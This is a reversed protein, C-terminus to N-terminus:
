RDAIESGVLTLQGAADFEYTNYRDYSGAPGETIREILQQRTEDVTLDSCLVFSFTFQETENDWLFYGYPVNKPYVAATLLGFDASGDFNIDRIDPEGVTFGHNVFLGEYLWDGDYTLRDTDITQLLIDGKGTGEYVQIQEVRRYNWEDRVRSGTLFVKLLRGDATHLDYRDTFETRTREFEFLAAADLQRVQQASNDEQWHATLRGNQVELVVWCNLPLELYARATENLSCTYFTGSEQWYLDLAGYTGYLSLLEGQADGDLDATYVTNCCSAIRSVGSETVQYFDYDEYAAGVGYELIFGDCGLVDTFPALRVRNWYVGSSGYELRFLSQENGTEADRCMLESATDFDQPVKLQIDQICFEYRSNYSLTKRGQEAMIQDIPYETLLPGEATPTTNAASQSSLLTQESPELADPEERVQCSVLGYCFLVTLASLIVLLVPPRKKKWQFINRLRLEVEKASGSLRTSFPSNPIPHKM